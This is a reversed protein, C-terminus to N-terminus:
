ASARRAEVAAILILGLGATICADAVNFVYFRWFALFDVVYGHVIRDAVNGVAGGAVMGFGMQALPSRVLSERLMWGLIGLVALALLVLLLVRDGFLGMAGHVNQVYVLSFAGPIVVLRESPFFTTVIWRKSLLDAIAVL